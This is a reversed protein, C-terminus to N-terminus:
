LEAVVTLKSPKCVIAYKSGSMAKRVFELLIVISRLKRIAEIFTEISQILRQQRAAATSGGATTPERGGGIM